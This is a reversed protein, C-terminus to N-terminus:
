LRINLLAVTGIFVFAAIIEAIGFEEEPKSEPASDPTQSIGLEVALRDVRGELNQINRTTLRRQLGRKLARPSNKSM